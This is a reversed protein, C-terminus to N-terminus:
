AAVEVVRHRTVPEPNEDGTTKFVQFDTSYQELSVQWRQDSHRARFEVQYGSEASGQVSILELEGIKLLGNHQRLHHEAAQVPGAYLTRGRFHSLLLEGKEHTTILEPASDAEMRGYHLGQPLVIVNGAFRHGGQHSSQWVQEPHEDAVSRYAALGLRACCADRKGNTCFLFLPENVEVLEPVDAGAFVAEFDLELLEDYSTFEYSRLWSDQEDSRALYARRPQPQKRDDRTIFLVRGGDISYAAGSLHDKVAQPLDSEALAKRGWPKPVEIAIWSFATTATAAVREEHGRSSGCSTTPDQELPTPM